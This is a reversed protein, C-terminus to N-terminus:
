LTDYIADDPNEWFQFSSEALKLSAFDAGSIKLLKPLESLLQRQERPPFQEIAEEVEHLSLRM